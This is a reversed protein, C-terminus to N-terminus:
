QSTKPNSENQLGNLALEGYFSNNLGEGIRGLGMMWPHGSFANGLASLPVGILPAKAWISDQKAAVQIVSLNALILASGRLLSTAYDLVPKQFFKPMFLCPITGMYTLMVSIKALNSANWNSAKWWTESTHNGTSKSLQFLSKHDEVIFQGMKGLEGAIGGLRQGLSEPSASSFHQRIGELSYVRKENPNQTKSNQLENIFGLQWFSCLLMWLNIGLARTSNKSSRALLIPPIAQLVGAALMAPQQLRIGAVWDNVVGLGLSAATLYWGVKSKALSKAWPTQLKEILLIGGGALSLLPFLRAGFTLSRQSLTPEPPHPEKAVDAIQQRLVAFPSLQDQLGHSLRGAYSVSANQFAPHGTRTNASTSIPWPNM